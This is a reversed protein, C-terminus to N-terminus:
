SSILDDTETLHTSRVKQMMDEPKMGLADFQQQVEPSNIDFGDIAEAMGPDMGGAQAEMMTEIQKRMEPNEMMWQFTDPNRMHEPLYPYLMKQAEPDRMMTELM